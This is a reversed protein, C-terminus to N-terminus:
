TVFWGLFPATPFGSHASYSFGLRPVLEKAIICCSKRVHKRPDTQEGAMQENCCVGQWMSSLSLPWCGLAPPKACSPNFPESQVAHRHELLFKLCCWKLCKEVCCSTLLHLIAVVPKHVFFDLQLLLLSTNAPLWIGHDGTVSWM